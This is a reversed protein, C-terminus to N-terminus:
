KKGIEDKTFTFVIISALEIYKLIDEVNYIPIDRNLLTLDKITNKISSGTRDPIGKDIILFIHLKTSILDSQCTKKM